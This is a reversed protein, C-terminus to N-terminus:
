KAMRINKVSITTRFSKYIKVALSVLNRPELKKVSFVQVEFEIRPELKKQYFFVQVEFSSGRFKTEIFGRIM